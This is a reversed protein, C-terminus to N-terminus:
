CHSNHMFIMVFVLREGDGAKRSASSAINLITCMKFDKLSSAGKMNCRGEASLRDPLWDCNNRKTSVGFSNSTKLQKINALKWHSQSTDARDGGGEQITTHLWYYQAVTYDRQILYINIYTIEKEGCRM